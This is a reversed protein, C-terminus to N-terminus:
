GVWRAIYLHLGGVTQFCLSGLVCHVACSGSCPHSSSAFAPTLAASACDSYHVTGAAATATAAAAAQTQAVCNANSTRRPWGLGKRLRSRRFCDTTRSPKVFTSCFQHLWSHTMPVTVTHILGTCCTLQRRVLESSCVCSCHVSAKLMGGNPTGGTIHPICVNCVCGPAAAVPVSAVGHLRLKLKGEMRHCNWKHKRILASVNENLQCLNLLGQSPINVDGGAGGDHCFIVWVKFLHTATGVTSM